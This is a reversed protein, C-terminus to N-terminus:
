NSVKDISKGLLATRRFFSLVGLFAIIFGGVGVIVGLGSNLVVGILLVLLGTLVILAKMTYTVLPKRRGKNFDAELTALINKEHESLGNSM